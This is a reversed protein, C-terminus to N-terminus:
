ITPTRPLYVRRTPFPSLIKKMYFLFVLIYNFTKEYNFRLFPYAGNHIYSFGKLLAHQFLLYVLKRRM